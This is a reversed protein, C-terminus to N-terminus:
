YTGAVPEQGHHLKRWKAVLQKKDEQHAPDKVCSDVPCVAVCRPSEYNGVCETCKAPDIIYIPDGESVAKNVDCEPECAGCAICEETIKYAM